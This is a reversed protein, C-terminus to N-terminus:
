NVTHGLDSAFKVLDDWENHNIAGDKNANACCLAGRTRWWPIRAGWDKFAKALEKRCLVGDNNADYKKFMERIVEAETVPVPVPVATTVQAETPPITKAMTNYNHFGTSLPM